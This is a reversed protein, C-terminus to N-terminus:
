LKSQAPLVTNNYQLTANVVLSAGRTNNAPVVAILEVVITDNVGARVTDPINTIDGFNFTATDNEGDSDTDNLLLQANNLYNQMTSAMFAVRGSLAVLKQNAATPLSLNVSTAPTTGQPLTFSVLIRLTEGAAVNSGNTELLSTTDLAIAFSPAATTIQVNNAMLTTTRIEGTNYTAPTASSYVLSANSSITTNSTALPTM